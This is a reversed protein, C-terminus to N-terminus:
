YGIDKVDLIELGTILLIMKALQLSSPVCAASTKTNSRSDITVPLIGFYGM